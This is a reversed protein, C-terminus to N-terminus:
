EDLEDPPQDDDLQDDQCVCWTSGQCFSERRAKTSCHDVPETYTARPREVVLEIRPHEQVIVLRARANWPDVFRVQDAWVPALMMVLAVALLFIAILGYKKQKRTVRIELFFM